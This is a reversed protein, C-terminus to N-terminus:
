EAEEFFVTAPRDMKLIIRLLSLLERHRDSGMCAQFAVRELPTIARDLGLVVHRHGKTRSPTDRVIEVGVGNLKLVDIMKNLVTRSHPSDLDIFLEDVKPLVIIRTDGDELNMRRLAEVPAERLDSV